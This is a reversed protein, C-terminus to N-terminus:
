RKTRQVILGISEARNKFNANHYQFSSCDPIGDLDNAYHVMEHLLVEAIDEPQGKLHEATITIEGIKKEADNEWKDGGFWGLASKRGKTQIAIVPQPFDRGFLPAFVRFGRELERIAKDISRM